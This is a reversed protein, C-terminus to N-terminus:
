GSHVLTYCACVFSHNFHSITFHMPFYKHNRSNLIKHNTNQKTERFLDHFKVTEYVYGSTSHWTSSFTRSKWANKSHTTKHKFPLSLYVSSFYYVHICRIHQFWVCVLPLRINNKKIRRNERSNVSCEFTFSISLLFVLLTVISLLMM